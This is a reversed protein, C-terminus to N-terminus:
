WEIKVATGAIDYPIPPNLKTLEIMGSEIAPYKSVLADHIRKVVHELLKSPTEMERRIVEIADAYNLTDNVDDTMMAQGIPYQLHVTLEFTNGNIREEDFVGHRAFLRLGNIEITGKM